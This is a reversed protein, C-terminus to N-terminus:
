CRVKYPFLTVAPAFLQFSNMSSYPPGRMHYSRHRRFIAQSSLSLPLSLLFLLSPFPGLSRSGGTMRDWRGQAGRRQSKGRKLVLIPLPSCATPPLPPFPGDSYLCPGAAEELSGGPVLWPLHSLTSPSFPFKDKSRM